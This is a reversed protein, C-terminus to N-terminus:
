DTIRPRLLGHALGARLREGPSRALQKLQHYADSEDIDLLRAALRARDRVDLEYEAKARLDAPM